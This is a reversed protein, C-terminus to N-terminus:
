MSSKSTSPGYPDFGTKKSSGKRTRATYRKAKRSPKRPVDLTQIRDIDCKIVPKNGAAESEDDELGLTKKMQEARVQKGCCPCPYSTKKTGYTDKYLVERWYEKRIRCVLKAWYAGEDVSNPQISSDFDPFKELAREFSPLAQSTKSFGAINIYACILKSLPIEPVPSDPGTSCTIPCSPSSLVESIALQLNTRMALM